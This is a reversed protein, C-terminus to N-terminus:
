KVSLDTLLSDLLEDPAFEVGDSDIELSYQRFSDNEEGIMAFEYVIASENVYTVKLIDVEENEHLITIHEQADISDFIGSLNEYYSDTDLIRLTCDALVGDSNQYEFCLQTIEDDIVTQEYVDIGDLLVAGTKEEQVAESSEETNNQAELGLDNEETESMINENVLVETTDTKACGFITVCLLATLIVTQRKRM